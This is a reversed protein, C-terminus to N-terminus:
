NTYRDLNRACAFQNGEKCSIMEGYCFEAFASQDNPLTTSANSYFPQMSQEFVIQNGLDHFLKDAIDPQGPNQDIVLQKANEMITDYTEEGFTPPAPRKHPNVDIDSVLVNSFPNLQSPTDFTEKDLENKSIVELAPSQFSELRKKEQLKYYYFLYISLLTLAGVLLIRNNYGYIFTFITLLIVSRSIANLSQYFTMDKTPFLELAYKPAILINPNEGWFPVKRKTKGKRNEMNENQENEMNENGIYEQNNGDDSM